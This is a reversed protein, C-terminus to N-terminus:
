REIEVETYHCDINEVMRLIRAKDYVDSTGNKCNPLANIAKILDEKYIIEKIKKAM